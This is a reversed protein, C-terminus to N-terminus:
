SIPPTGCEGEEAVLVRVGDPLWTTALPVRWRLELYRPLKSSRALSRALAQIQDTRTTLFRVKTDLDDPMWRLLFVRGGLRRTTVRVPARDGDQYVFWGVPQLAGSLSTLLSVGIVKPQRFFIRLSEGDSRYEDMRLPRQCFPSLRAYRFWPAHAKIVALQRGLFTWNEPFWIFRTDGPNAYYAAQLRTVSWEAGLQLGRATLVGMWSGQGYVLVMVLLGGLVMGRKRRIWQSWPSLLQALLVLAVVWGLVFFFFYWYQVYGGLITLRGLTTALAVALVWAALAWWFALGRQPRRILSWGWWIVAGLVALGIFGGLPGELFRPAFLSLLYGPWRADALAEWLPPYGLSARSPLISVIWAFVALLVVPPGYARCNGARPLWYALAAVPLLVLGTNHSVAGLVLLATGGTAALLSDRRLLYLGGIGGLYVAGYQLAYWHHQFLVINAPWFLLLPVGVRVVRRTTVDLGPVGAVARGLWACALAMAVLGFVAHLWFLPRGSAAVADIAFLPLAMLSDAFPVFYSTVREAWGAQLALYHNYASWYDYLPVPLRLVAALVATLLVMVACAPWVFLRKQEPVGEPREGM